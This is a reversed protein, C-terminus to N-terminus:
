SQIIRERNHVLSSLTARTHLIMSSVGDKQEDDLADLVERLGVVTGQEDETAKLMM